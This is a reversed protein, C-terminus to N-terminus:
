SNSRNEDGDKKKKKKLMTAEKYDRTEMGINMLLDDEKKGNWFFHSIFINAQNQVGGRGLGRDSLEGRM